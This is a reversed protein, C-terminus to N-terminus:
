ACSFFASFKCDMDLIARVSKVLEKSELALTAPINRGSRGLPTLSMQSALMARRESHFCYFLALSIVCHIIDLNALDSNKM